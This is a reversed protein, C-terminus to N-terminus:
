SDGEKDSAISASLNFRELGIRGDLTVPAEFRVEAFLDSAELVPILASAAGSYGAMTLRDDFARIQLLWTDDPLLRTIEHLLGVATPRGTKRGALLDSVSATEALQRRLLDVAAAETRRTELQAEYEALLAQQRQLPVAILAAALLGACVWLVVALRTALGGRPLEPRRFVFGAGPRDADRDDAFCVMDPKLGWAEASAEFQAAVDRPVVALDVSLTQAEPDTSLPKLDFLVDSAAFPTYRDMEFSIVERLNERAALPLEIARRLVRDEPLALVTEATRRRVRAVLKAVTARAGQPTDPDIAVRGIEVMGGPGRFRLAVGGPDPAVILTGSRRRLLARLPAPVCAALERGWWRFFAAVAGPLSRISTVGGFEAASSM